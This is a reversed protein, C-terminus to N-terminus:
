HGVTTPDLSRATSCTFKNHTSWYFSGLLEMRPETPSSHTPGRGAGVGWLTGRNIGRAKLTPLPFSLLSKRWIMRNTKGQKGYVTSSMYNDAIVKLAPCLRRQCCWTYFPVGIPVASTPTPQHGERMAPLPAWTRSLGHPFHELATVATGLQAM